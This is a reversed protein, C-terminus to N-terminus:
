NLNGRKNIAGANGWRALDDVEVGVWYLNGVSDTDSGGVIRQGDGLIIGNAFDCASKRDRFVHWQVVRNTPSKEPIPRPQDLFPHDQM